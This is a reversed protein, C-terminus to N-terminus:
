AALAFGRFCSYIQATSKKFPIQNGKQRKEEKGKLKNM